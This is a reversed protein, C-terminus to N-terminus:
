NTRRRQCDAELLGHPSALLRWVTANGHKESPTGIINEFPWDNKRISVWAVLSGDRATAPIEHKIGDTCEVSSDDSVDPITPPFIHCLHDAFLLREGNETHSFLRASDNVRGRRSFILQRAKKPDRNRKRQRMEIM